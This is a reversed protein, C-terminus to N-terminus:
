IHPFITDNISTTEGCSSYLNVLSWLNGFQKLMVSVKLTVAIEGIGLMRKLLIFHKTTWTEDIALLM